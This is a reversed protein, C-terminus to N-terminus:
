GLVWLHPLSGGLDHGISRKALEMELNDLQHAIAALSDHSANNPNATPGKGKALYHRIYDALKGRSMRCGGYYADQDAQECAWMFAEDYDPHELLKMM